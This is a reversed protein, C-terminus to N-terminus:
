VARDLMDAIGDCKRKGEEALVALGHFDKIGVNNELQYSLSEFLSRCVDLERLANNVIVEERQTQAKIEPTWITRGAANSGTGEQSRSACVQQAQRPHIAAHRQQMAHQHVAPELRDLRVFGAYGMARDLMDAIGDCKRKGEEALVALGHFDKIGVNNELQYSLSEFLSRCVDLERLANNM